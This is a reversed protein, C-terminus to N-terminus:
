VGLEPGQRFDISTRVRLRFKDLVKDRGPGLHHVKIAEVKLSRPPNAKFAKRMPFPNAIEVGQERCDAVPTGKYGIRAFHAIRFWVGTEVAKARTRIKRSDVGNKEVFDM